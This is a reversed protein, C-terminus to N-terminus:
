EIGKIDDEMVYHVSSDSLIVEVIDADFRAYGKVIGVAGLYLSYKNVIRVKQGSTFM